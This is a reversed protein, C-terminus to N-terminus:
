RSAWAVLAWAVTVTTGSGASSMFPRIMPLSPRLMRANSASVPTFTMTSSVGSETVSDQKSRPAARPQPPRAPSSEDGVAPDMWLADLDGDGLRLGTSGLAGPRRTVLGGLAGPDTIQVGLQDLREAPQPQPGAVPLVHELMEHLAGLQSRQHGGLDTGVHLDSAAGGEQVVDALREGGLEAARVRLDAGLEGRPATLVRRHDVRDGGVM